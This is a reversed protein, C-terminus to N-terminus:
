FYTIKKLLFGRTREAARTELASAPRPPFSRLPCLPASSSSLRPASAGVPRRSHTDSSTGPPDRGSGARSREAGRGPPLHRKSVARRRATCTPDDESEREVGKRSDPRGHGGKWGRVPLIKDRREGRMGRRGNERRSQAGGKIRGSYRDTSVM